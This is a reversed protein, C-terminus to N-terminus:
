RAATALGLEAVLTPYRPLVARAGVRIRVPDQQVVSGGGGGGLALSVNAVVQGGVNLLRLLSTSVRPPEGPDGLVRGLAVHAPHATDPM